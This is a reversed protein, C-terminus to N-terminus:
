TKPKKTWCGPRRIQAPMQFSVAQAVCAIIGSHRNIQSGQVRIEAHSCPQWNLLDAVCFRQLFPDFSVDSAIFNSTDRSLLQEVHVSRQPQPLIRQPPM